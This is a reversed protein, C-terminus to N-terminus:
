HVGYVVGGGATVAGGFHLCIDNANVTTHLGGAASFDLAFATANPYPGAITATGSGCTSGTGQRITVTQASDATFSLHGLYTKKASTGTVVVVDTGSSLTFAGQDPFAFASLVNSADDRFGTTIPNGAAAGPASGGNVLVDGATDTKVTQVNTGDQGAVLVPPTTPPNGVATVGDVVCPTGTTGPCGSSSPSGGSSPGLKFGYLVGSVNGTGTLTNLRMRVWPVNVTGNDFTSLEGTTSTMPNAGTVVTGGYTGFTGATVAGQASQFVVSVASFGTSNYQVTWTKCGSFRNDLAATNNVATFNFNLQCDAAQPVAQGWSKCPLLLIPFLLLLLHPISTPLKSTTLKKTQM